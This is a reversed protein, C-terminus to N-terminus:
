GRTQVGGTQGATTTAAPNTKAPAVAANAATPRVAGNSALFGLVDNSFASLDESISKNRRQLWNYALV